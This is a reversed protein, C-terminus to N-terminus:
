PQGGLNHLCWHLVRFKEGNDCLIAALRHLPLTYDDVPDPMQNADVCMIEDIYAFCWPEGERYRLREAADPWPITCVPSCCPLRLPKRM